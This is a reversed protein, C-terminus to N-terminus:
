VSFHMSSHTPGKENGHGGQRAKKRHRSGGLTCGQAVAKLHVAIVM